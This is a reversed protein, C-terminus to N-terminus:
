FTKPPRSLIFKLKSFIDLRKPGLPLLRNFNLIGTRNIVPKNLAYNLIIMLKKNVTFFFTRICKKLTQIEKYKSVLSAQWNLSIIIPRIINM